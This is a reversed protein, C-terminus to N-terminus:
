SRRRVWECEGSLTTLEFGQKCELRDPLYCLEADQGRGSRSCLEITCTSAAGPESPQTQAGERRRQPQRYFGKQKGQGVQHWVQLRGKEVADTNWPSKRQALKEQVKPTKEGGRQGTFM